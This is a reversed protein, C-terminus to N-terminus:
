GKDRSAIRKGRNLAMRTERAGNNNQGFYYERLDTGM